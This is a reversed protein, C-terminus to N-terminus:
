INKFPFSLMNQYIKHNTQQLDSSTIIYQLDNHISQGLQCMEDKNLIVCICTLQTLYTNSLYHPEM